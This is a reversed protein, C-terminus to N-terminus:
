FLVIFDGEIIEANRKLDKESNMNPLYKSAKLDLSYDPGYKLFESVDDPIDEPLQINCLHATLLTWFRATNSFNYGGGGLFLTPLDQALIINICEILDSPVLNSGGLPDGVIVDAGCQIICVEPKYLKFINTM